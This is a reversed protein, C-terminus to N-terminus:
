IKNPVIKEIVTMVEQPVDSYAANVGDTLEYNPFVLQGFSKKYDDARHNKLSRLNIYNHAVGAKFRSIERTCFILQHYWM